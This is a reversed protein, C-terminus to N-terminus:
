YETVFVQDPDMEARKQLWKDMNPYVSKLYALNFTKTGCKQGPRPLHKGWHLRTGPIDLLVDWFYSFYQQMDGENHAWWYPDVRVMDGGNSMSLWFPSKKAGYIETAFNGAAMPNNKFLDQLKSMVIQCQDIPIWIETFKVKIIIDVHSNNDMPLTKYFVDRFKKPEDLPVFQKLLCNAAGYIQPSETLDPDNLVMDYFCLTLAAMGATMINELSAHYPIIEGSSTQKGIWEQVRHIDKQPFWNVRFYENTELSKKLKSKGTEDPGLSSHAFEYNSETGQILKAQPLRFTVHTIIGFLGM